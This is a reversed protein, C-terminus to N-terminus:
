KLLMSTAKNLVSFRLLDTALPIMKAILLVIKKESFVLNSPALPDIETNEECFISIGSRIVTKNKHCRARFLLNWTM